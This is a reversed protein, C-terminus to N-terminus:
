LSEYNSVIRLLTTQDSSILHDIACVYDNVAFIRFGIAREEFIHEAKMRNVRSMTPQNESQRRSFDSAMGTVFIALVLKIQHAVIQSRHHGREIRLSNM